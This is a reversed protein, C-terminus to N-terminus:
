GNSARVARDEHAHLARRLLTVTRKAEPKGAQAADEVQEIGERPVWVSAASSLRRGPHSDLNQGAIEVPVEGIYVTEALLERIPDTHTDTGACEFALATWDDTAGYARPDLARRDFFMRTHGCARRVVAAVAARPSTLVGPTEDVDDADAVDARTDDTDPDFQVTLVDREDRGAASPAPGTDSDAEPPESSAPPEPSEAPADPQPSEDSAIVREEGRDSYDHSVRNSVSPLTLTFSPVRVWRFVPYAIAAMEVLALLIMAAVVGLLLKTNATLQVDVTEGLSFGMEAIITNGTEAAPGASHGATAPTSTVVVCAALTFLLPLGLVTWRAPEFPRRDGLM